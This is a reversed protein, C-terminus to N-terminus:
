RRLAWAKTMALWAAAGQPDRERTLAAFGRWVVFVCAALLALKAGVVVTSRSELGLSPGELLTMWAASANPYSVSRGEIRAGPMWEIQRFYEASLGLQDTGSLEDDETGRLAEFMHQRWTADELDDHEFGPTVAAQYDAVALWALLLFFTLHIRVETGAIRGIRLAWRM